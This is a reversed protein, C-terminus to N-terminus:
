KDALFKKNVTQQQELFQTKWTPFTGKAAHGRLTEFFREYHFTNHISLLIEALMEHVCLLHHIYARSHSTCSYCGCRTSIPRTDLAYRKDRLNMTMVERAFFEHERDKEEEEKTGDTFDLIFTLAYGLEAMTYPYASNILDIGLEVCQLVEEPGGPVAMLRPKDQPLLSMVEAILARREEETEGL